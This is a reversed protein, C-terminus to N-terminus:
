QRVVPDPESRGEQETEVLELVPQLEDFRPGKTVLHTDRDWEIFGDETLEPLHVHYMRILAKDVTEITLSGTLYEDVFADHARMLERSERSLKEVRQPDYSRLEALLQRRQEHALATFVTDDIM